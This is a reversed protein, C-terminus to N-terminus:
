GTSFFPLFTKNIVEKLNLWKKGIKKFKKFLWLM